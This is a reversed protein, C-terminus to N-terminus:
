AARRHAADGTRVIAVPRRAGSHDRGYREVLLRTGYASPAHITVLRNDPSIRITPAAIM